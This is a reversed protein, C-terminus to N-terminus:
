LNFEKQRQPCPSDQFSVFLIIYQSITPCLPPSHQLIHWFSLLVCLPLPYNHHITPFSILFLPSLHPPLTLKPWKGYYILSLFHITNVWTACYVGVFFLIFKIILTLVTYETHTHPISDVARVILM